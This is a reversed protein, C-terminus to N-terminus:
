RDTGARRSPRSRTTLGYGSNAPRISLPRLRPRRWGLKAAIRKVPAPEDGPLANWEAWIAARYVEETTM